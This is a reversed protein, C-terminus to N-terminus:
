HQETGWVAFTALNNGNNYIRQIENGSLVSTTVRAEDILGNWKRTNITDQGITLVAANGFIAGGGPVTTGNSAGNFYVAGGAGDSYTAAVHTWAATPVTSSGTVTVFGTARLFLTVNNNVVSFELVDLGSGNKIIVPSFTALSTPNVWAMMSISAPSSPTNGTSIYQTSASALSAAGDIKGTGATPANVLTGNANGTSDKADLAASVTALHWVGAYGTWVNPVDGVWTTQSAKGYCAWAVVTDSGSSQSVASKIWIKATTGDTSDYFEWEWPILTACTASTAFVLDAPVTISAGGTQAVTNVVAGGSGTVAIRATGSLAIEGTSAAPVLASSVTITRCNAYGNGCVAGSGTSQNSGLFNQGVFIAPVLILISTLIRTSTRM